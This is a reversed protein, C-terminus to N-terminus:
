VVVYTAYGRLLTKLLFSILFSISVIGLFILPQHYYDFFLKYKHGILLSYSIVLMHICYVGLTLNSLNKIVRGIKQNKIDFDNFLLFVSIAGIYYRLGNFKFGVSMNDYALIYYAFFFLFIFMLSKFINPLKGFTSIKDKYAYILTGTFFYPAFEVLRGLTFKIQYSFGSFIKYNIGTYELIFCLFVISGFLKILIEKNRIVSVFLFFILNLWSLIVLFYLPENVSHGFFFQLFLNKTNLIQYNTTKAFTHIFPTNFFYKSISIIIFYILSWLIIPSYIRKFRKFIFIKSVDASDMVRSTFYSSMLIFSPVALYRFFEFLQSLDSFFYYTKTHNAIVFIAALLRLLELSTKRSTKLGSEIKHTM